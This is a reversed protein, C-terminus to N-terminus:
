ASQMLHRGMRNGATVSPRWRERVAPDGALARALKREASRCIQAVRTSTIPVSGRQVLIAAIQKYTRLTLSRPQSEAPQPESTTSENMRNM